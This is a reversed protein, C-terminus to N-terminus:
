AADTARELVVVPIERETRQQYSDYAPWIQTMLQWLRPKEDPTATRARAAFRDAKVQVEVAPEAELNLFWDPPKPDGGNSAVVVFRDGDPQYILPSHRQQGSRRGTTTLILVTAGRWEHGVEGDTEVYRDVHEKGYLM